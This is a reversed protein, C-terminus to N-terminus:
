LWGTNLNNSHHETKRRKLLKLAVHNTEFTRGLSQRGRAMEM